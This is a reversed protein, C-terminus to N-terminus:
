PQYVRMISDASHYLADMNLVIRGNLLMKIIVQILNLMTGIM